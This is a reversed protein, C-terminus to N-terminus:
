SSATWVGTFRRTATANPSRAMATQVSVTTAAQAQRPIAVHLLGGAEGGVVAVVPDGGEARVLLERLLALKDALSVFPGSRVQYAM